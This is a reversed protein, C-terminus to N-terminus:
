SIATAFSCSSSSSPPSRRRGRQLRRSHLPSRRRRVPRSALVAGWNRAIVFVPLQARHRATRRDAGLLIPFLIWDIGSSVTKALIFAADGFARDNAAISRASARRYGDAVYFPVMLCSPAFRVGSGARRESRLLADRRPQRPVAALRRDALPRDRRSRAFRWGRSSATSSAGTSARHPPRPRRAPVREDVQHM